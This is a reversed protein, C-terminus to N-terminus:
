LHWWLRSKCEWYNLTLIQLAAWKLGTNYKMCFGTMWNATCILHGTEIHFVISSQFPIFEHWFLKTAENIIRHCIKSQNSQNNNTNNDISFFFVYVIIIIIIIIFCCDVLLRNSFSSINIFYKVTKIKKKKKKNKHQQYYTFTWCIFFFFFICLLFLFLLWFCFWIKILWFINILIDLEM